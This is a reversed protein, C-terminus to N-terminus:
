ERGPMEPVLVMPLTVFVRNGPDMELAVASFLGEGVADCCVSGAFDSTDAAPFEQDILWSTQGNAELPISTADLLVGERMLDYRVLGPSSELNYIAAWTNIGGEQCRVSFLADSTPQDPGVGAVGIEPVSYRVVGGIPGDSLVTVSGSVLEGRGHTSITLAELAEMESAKEKREVIPFPSYIYRIDDRDTVGYLHFFVADLRSRLILRRRENWIFPPKVRGMEDVYGMDRGFPAMDHSTYTLELVAERVIEGATKPGFYVSNFRDLPVIPLQEVIFWNLHQGQITQRAVYDFPIANFNALMIAADMASARRDFRHFAYERSWFRSDVGCDHVARKDSRDRGQVCTSIPGDPVVDREAVGLVASRSALGREPAAEGGIDSTIELCESAGERVWSEVWRRATLNMPSERFHVSMKARALNKALIPSHVIHQTM